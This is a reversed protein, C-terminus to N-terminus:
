WAPSKGLLPGGDYLSADSRGFGRPRRRPPQGTRPDPSLWQRLEGANLQGLEELAPPQQSRPSFANKLPAGGEPLQAPAKRGSPKATRYGPEFRRRAAEARLRLERLTTKTAMGAAEGAAAMTNGIQAVRRVEERATQGIRREANQVAAATNERMRQTKSKRAPAPTLLARPSIGPLLPPNSSTAGPLAPPTPTPKPRAPSGDEPPTGKRSTTKKSGRSANYALAGATIAAVGLGAAIAAQTPFAGKQHCTKNAPIHSQGCARGPADTRTRSTPSVLISSRTLAM